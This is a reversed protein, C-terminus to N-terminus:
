VRKEAGKGLRREGAGEDKPGRGRAVGIRRKKKRGWAQSMDWNKAM